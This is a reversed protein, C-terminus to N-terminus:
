RPRSSAIRHVRRDGDSRSSAIPTSERPPARDHQPRDPAPPPCTTSFGLIEDPQFESAGNFAFQDSRTTCRKGEWQEPAMYAPTGRLGPIVDGGAEGPAVSRAIGFDLVRARGDDGVIVNEPKFDGHVVRQGHAAALGLGAQCVTAIRESATHEADMWARLTVGDVLEMAVYDARSTHGVDFITVVNPHNLRALLRAEHLPDGSRRRRALLKLAVPRELEEDRARYVVGNVGRGLEGLVRYRGALAAPEGELGEPDM